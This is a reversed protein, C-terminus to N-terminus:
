AKPFWRKSSLKHECAKLIAPLAHIRNSFLTCIYIHRMLSLIAYIQIAQSHEQGAIDLYRKYIRHEHQSFTHLNSHMRISMETLHAIFNGIDVAPDGMCFLDFDVVTIGQEDKSLLIQDPYYDRHITTVPRQLLSGSLARAQSFINQLRNQLTPYLQSLTVFRQHLIDLEDLISHSRETNVSFNHIKFAADAIKEIVKGNNEKTQLKRQLYAQFDHTLGVFEQLWMNTDTLLGLPQPIHINDTNNNVNKMKFHTDWIKEYVNYQKQLTKKAGLKGLVLLRRTINDTTGGVIISYKILCRKGPKHRLIEITILEAHLTHHQLFPLKAFESSIFEPDLAFKASPLSHDNLVQSRYNDAVQQSSLNLVTM